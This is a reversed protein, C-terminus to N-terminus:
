ASRKSKLLKQDFLRRDAVDVVDAFGDGDDPFGAAGWSFSPADVMMREVVATARQSGTQPLLLAFEDGGIRYAGDAERLGARLAEALNRLLVDGALHGQTDNVKKLGDVDLVVVSLPHEYRRARAVERTLDRDFARRNALSTLVDTFAAAELRAVARQVTVGIARDVVMHVREHTEALEEPPIRGEIHRMLTERLCVLQEVAVDVSTAAAGLDTAAAEVDPDPGLGLPQPRGMAAGLRSVLRVPEPPESNPPLMPDWRCLERWEEALAEQELRVLDILVSPQEEVV